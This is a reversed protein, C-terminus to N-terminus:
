EQNSSAGYKAGEYVCCVTSRVTATDDATPVSDHKHRKTLVLNGPCNGCRCRVADGELLAQKALITRCGRTMMWGITMQTLTWCHM